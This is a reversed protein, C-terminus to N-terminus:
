CWIGFQIWVDSFFSSKYKFIQGMNWINEDLLHPKHATIFGTMQSLELHKPKVKLSSDHRRDKEVIWPLFM